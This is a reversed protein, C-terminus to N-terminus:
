MMDVVIEEDENGGGVTSLSRRILDNHKVRSKRYAYFGLFTVIVSAALLIPLYWTTWVTRNAMDPAFMPIMDVVGWFMSFLSGYLLCGLVSMTPLVIKNIEDLADCSGSDCDERASSLSLAFYLITSGILPLFSFVVAVPFKMQMMGTSKMYSNNSIAWATGLNVPFDNKTLEYAVDLDILNQGTVYKSAGGGNASQSYDKLLVKKVDFPESKGLNVTFNYDHQELYDVVFHRFPMADADAEHLRQIILNHYNLDEVDAVGSSLFTSLVLSLVLAAIVGTTTLM